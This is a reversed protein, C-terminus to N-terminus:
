PCAPGSHTVSHPLVGADGGVGPCSCMRSHSGPSEGAPRKQLLPGVQPLHNVGCWRILNQHTVSCLTGSSKIHQGTASLDLLPRTPMKCQLVALLDGHTTPHTRRQKGHDGSILLRWSGCAKHTGSDVGPFRETYSYVWSNLLKACYPTV